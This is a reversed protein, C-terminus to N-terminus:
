NGAGSIWKLGIEMVNKLLERVPHTNDSIGMRSGVGVIAIQRLM